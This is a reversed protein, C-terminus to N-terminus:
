GYLLADNDPNNEAVRQTSASRTTGGQTLGAPIPSRAAGRTSGSAVKQRDAHRVMAFREALATRDLILGRSMKSFEAALQYKRERTNDELGAAIMAEACRIALIGDAKAASKGPAQGPAFNQGTSQDPKALQDGANNAYGDEHFQSAQAEADTTDAVPAPVSVREDPAATELDVARKRMTSGKKAKLAAETKRAQRLAIGLAPFMAQVPIGNYNAFQSAAKKINAESHQRTGKKTTATLWKDFARFAQLSSEHPLSTGGDGGPSTDRAPDPDASTFDDGTLEEAASTPVTPNVETATPGGAYEDAVRHVGAVRAYERATAELAAQQRRMTATLSHAYAEDAVLNGETNSINTEDDDPLDTSDPSPTQVIFAEEQEGQDNRSVDGGDTLPGEAFHQTGATKRRTALTSRAM